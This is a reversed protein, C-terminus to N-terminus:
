SARSRKVFYAGGLAVFLLSAVSPESVPAPIVNVDNSAPFHDDFNSADSYIWESIPYTGELIEPLGASSQYLQPGDFEFIPIPIGDSFGTQPGFFVSFLGHGASSYFRVSEPFVATRIGGLTYRFNSFAIDFDGGSSNSILPSSEVDLQLSWIQNPSALLTPKASNSFQGSVSLTLVSGSAPFMSLLAWLFFSRIAKITIM